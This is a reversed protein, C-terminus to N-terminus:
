QRGGKTLREFTYFLDRVRKEIDREKNINHIKKLLFNRFIM